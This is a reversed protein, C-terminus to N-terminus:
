KKQQIWLFPEKPPYFRSMLQKLEQGYKPCPDLLLSKLGNEWQIEQVKRWENESLWIQKVGAKDLRDREKLANNKFIAPTDREVERATAKL